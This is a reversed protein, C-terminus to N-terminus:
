YRRRSRRRDDDYSTSESEQDKLLGLLALFAFFFFGGSFNGGGGGGGGGGDDDDGPPLGTGGDDLEPSKEKGAIWISCKLMQYMLEFHKMLFDLILLQILKMGPFMMYKNAFCVRIEFYYKPVHRCFDVELCIQCCRFLFGYEYVTHQHDLKLLNGRTPAVTITSSERTVTQTQGEACRANQSFFM